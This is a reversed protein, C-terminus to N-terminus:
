TRPGRIPIVFFIYLPRYSVGMCKQAFIFDSKYPLSKVDKWFGDKKKKIEILFPVFHANKLKLNKIM